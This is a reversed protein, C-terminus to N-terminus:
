GVDALGAVSRAAALARAHPARARACVEFSAAELKAWTLPEAAEAEAARGDGVYADLGHLGNAGFFGGTPRRSAVPAPRTARRADAVSRSAIGALAERAADLSAEWDAVATALARPSKPYVGVQARGAYGGSSGKRATASEGLAPVNASASASAGARAPSHPKLGNADPAASDNLQPLSPTPV